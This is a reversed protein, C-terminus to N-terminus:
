RTVPASSELNPKVTDVPAAAAAISLARAEAETSTTPTWEWMPLWTNSADDNALATATIASAASDKPTSSIEM